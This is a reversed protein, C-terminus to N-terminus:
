DNYYTYKCYDGGAINGNCGSMEFPYTFEYEVKYIPHHTEYRFIHQFINEDCISNMQATFYRINSFLEIHNANTNKFQQFLELSSMREVPWKFHNDEFLQKIWKILTGKKNRTTTHILM